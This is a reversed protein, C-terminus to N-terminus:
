SSLAVVQAIALDGSFSFSGKLENVSLEGAREKLRNSLSANFQGRALPIIEIDLLDRGKEWGTHLAKLAAEKAAFVMSFKNFGKAGCFSRERSTFISNLRSPYNTVLKKVKAIEVLDIGISYLM